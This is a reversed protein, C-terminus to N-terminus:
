WILDTIDCHTCVRGASAPYAELRSLSHWKHASAECDKRLELCRANYAAVSAQYATVEDPTANRPAVLKM